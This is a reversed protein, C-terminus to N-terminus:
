DNGAIDDSYPYYIQFTGTAAGAGTVTDICTANHIMDGDVVADDVTGSGAGYIQTNIAIAGGASGIARGWIQYWGYSTTAANASMAVGVPGVANAAALATTPTAALKYHVWSGVVTSAVGPLYIFEATGYNVSRCWVRTGFPHNQTTSTQDIPQYGIVQNGFPNWEAM